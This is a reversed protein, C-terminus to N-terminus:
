NKGCVFEVFLHPALIPLANLIASLSTATQECNKTHQRGRMMTPHVLVCRAFNRQETLKNM